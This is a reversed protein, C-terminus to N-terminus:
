AAEARGLAVSRDAESRRLEVEFQDRELRPVAGEEARRGIIQFQQMLAEVVRDTLALDRM